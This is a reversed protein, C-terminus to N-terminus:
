SWLPVDHRFRPLGWSSVTRMHTLSILNLPSLRVHTFRSVKEILSYQLSYEYTGHFAPVAARNLYSERDRCTGDDDVTPLDVPNGLLCDASRYALPPPVKYM